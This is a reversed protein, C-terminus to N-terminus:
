RLATLSSTQSSSVEDPDRKTALQSAPKEGDDTRCRGATAAHPLAPSLPADIDFIFRNGSSLDSEKVDHFPQITFPPPNM